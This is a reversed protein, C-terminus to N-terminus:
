FVNLIIAFTGMYRYRNAYLTLRFRSTRADALVSDTFEPTTTSIVRAVILTDAAANVSRGPSAFFSIANARSVHRRAVHLARISVAAHYDSEQRAASNGTGGETSETM